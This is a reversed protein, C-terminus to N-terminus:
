TTPSDIILEVMEFSLHADTEFNVLASSSEFYLTFINKIYFNTSLSKTPDSLEFVVTKNNGSVSETETIPYSLDDIYEINRYNLFRTDFVAKFKIKEFKFFTKKLKLTASFKDGILSGLSAEMSSVVRYTFSPNNQVYTFNAVAEQYTNITTTIHSTLINALHGYSLASNGQIRFVCLSVDTQNNGFPASTSINITNVTNSVSLGSTASTFIRKNDNDSQLSIDIDVNTMPENSKELRLDLEVYSGDVVTANYYFRYEKFSSIVEKYSFIRNTYQIGDLEYLITRFPHDSFLQNPYLKKFSFSIPTNPVVGGSLTLRRGTFGTEYTEATTSM